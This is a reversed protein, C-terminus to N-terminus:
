SRAHFVSVAAVRARARDFFDAARLSRSGHPYEGRWSAWEAWGTPTWTSVSCFGDLHAEFRLPGELDDLTAHVIEIYRGEDCVEFLTRLVLRDVELRPTPEPAPAPDTRVDLGASGLARIADDLYAVVDPGDSAAHAHRIEDRVRDLDVDSPLAAARIRAAVNLYAVETGDEHANELDRAIELALTRYM